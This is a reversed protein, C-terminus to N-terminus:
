KRPVDGREGLSRLMRTVGYLVTNMSSLAAILIVINMIAAPLPMQLRNLTLVFPSIKTGVSGYPVLLAVLMISSLYLGLITYIIIQIAKPITQAPNRTEAAAVTVVAIGNYSFMVLPMSTWFGKLGHPFLLNQPSFVMKTFSDPSILLKGLGFGALMIFLALAVLKLISLAGEIRAFGATDRTNIFVMMLSYIVTFVWLPLHPFWLMTFISAAVVESAMTLVGATWYLWGSVFGLWSGFYEEAYTSFGGEVPEAAAMEALMSITLYMFFGGLLYALVASRGTNFLPIGSGLFFGAGIINGIAVLVLQPVAM